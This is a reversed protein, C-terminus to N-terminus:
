FEGWNNIYARLVCNYMHVTKQSVLDLLRDLEEVDGEELALEMLPVVHRAEPIIEASQM